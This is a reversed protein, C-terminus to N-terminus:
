RSRIKSHDRHYYGSEIRCASRMVVVSIGLIGLIASGREKSRYTSWGICRCLESWLEESEGGENM